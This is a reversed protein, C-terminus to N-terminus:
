CLDHLRCCYVVDWCLCLRNSGQFRRQLAVPQSQFRNDELDPFNEPPLSRDVGISLEGVTLDVKHTRFHRAGTRAPAVSRAANTPRSLCFEVSISGGKRSFYILDRSNQGPTTEVGSEREGMGGERGGKWGGGFEEQAQSQAIIRIQGSFHCSRFGM